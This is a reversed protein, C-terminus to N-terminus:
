KGDGGNVSLCFKFQSDIPLLVAEGDIVFQRTRNLRFGDYSDTAQSM